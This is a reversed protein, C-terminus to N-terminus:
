VLVARRRKQSRASVARRRQGREPLLPTEGSEFWFLAGDSKPIRRSPADVKVPNLYFRRRAAKLGFCRATATQSRASVARRGRISFDLM